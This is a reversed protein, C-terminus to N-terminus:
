FQALLITGNALVRYGIKCVADSKIAISRGSEFASM